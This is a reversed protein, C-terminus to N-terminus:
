SLGDIGDEVFVVSVIAAGQLFILYEVQDVIGELRQTSVSWYVVLLNTLEDHSDVLISISFYCLRFEKFNELFQDVTSWVRRYTM